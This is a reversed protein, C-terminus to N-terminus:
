ARRVGRDPGPSAAKGHHSGPELHVTLLMTSAELARVDHRVNPDLILLQGAGLEHDKRDARVGMRGELVHITVVGNASHEPLAGGSEFAFLVYTVPPRHFLTVQRHGGKAEHAEARLAASSAGLHFEHSDGEFRAVPAPRVRHFKATTAM